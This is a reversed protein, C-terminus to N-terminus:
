EHLHTDQCSQFHELAALIYETLSTYGWQEALAEARDKDVTSPFLLEHKSNASQELPLDGLIIRYSSCEHVYGRKRRLLDQWPKEMDDRSKGPYFRFCRDFIERPIELVPKAEILIALNWERFETGNFECVAAAFERCSWVDPVTISAM